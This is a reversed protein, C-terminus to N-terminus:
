PMPIAAKSPAKEKGALPTGPAIAHVLYRRAPEPLHAVAAESFAEGATGVELARWAGTLAADAQARRRRLAGTAFAAGAGLLGLSSLLRRRTKVFRSVALTM